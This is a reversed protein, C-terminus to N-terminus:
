RGIALYCDSVHHNMRSGSAVFATAVREISPAARAVHIQHVAAILGAKESAVCRKSWFCVMHNAIDNMSTLPRKIDSEQRDSM